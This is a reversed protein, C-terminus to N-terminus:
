ENNCPVLQNQRYYPFDVYYTTKGVDKYHIFQSDKDCLVLVYSDDEASVRVPYVKVQKLCEKDQYYRDLISFFMDADLDSPLPGQQLQHGKIKQSFDVLCDDLEAVQSLNSYCSTLLFAASLWVLLLIRKRHM